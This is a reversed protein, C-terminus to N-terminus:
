VIVFNKGANTLNVFGEKKIFVIDEIRIGGIDKYYLGPEITVVDGEILLDDNESISPPEHIDLGVGHGTTHIFGEKIKNDDKRLTDYGLSEFYECVSLHIDRCGSGPKLMEFAIKQAGLIADYMEILKNDAEGKVFTRTMDSFYRETMLRPFIDMVIPNGSKIAGKGVSHPDASDIGSSCILGECFADNDLLIKEIVSRLYESTLKKHDYYLYDKKIISRELVKKVTNLANEAAKQAKLIYEVEKETKERRKMKFPNKIINVSFGEEKLLTYLFSPFNRMVAISNIDEEHLINAIMRGFAIYTDKHKKLLKDFNYTNYDSIKDFEAEKKARDIEMRPLYIFKRKFDNSLICLFPDTSLFKTTYYLDQDSYSNGYLLLYGNEKNMQGSENKNLLENLFLYPSTGRM